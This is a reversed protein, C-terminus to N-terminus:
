KDSHPTKGNEDQKKKMTKSKATLKDKAMAHLRMAEWIISNAGSCM